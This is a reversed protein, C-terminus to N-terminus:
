PFLQLDCYRSARRPHGISWLSYLSKIIIISPHHHHHISPLPCKARLHVYAQGRLAVLNPANNIPAFFRDLLLKDPFSYCLRVVHTLSVFPIQIGDHLLPFVKPTVSENCWARHTEQSQPNQEDAFYHYTM